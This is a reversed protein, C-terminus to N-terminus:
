IQIPKGNPLVGLVGGESNRANGIAGSDKGEKEPNVNDSSLVRSPRRNTNLAL